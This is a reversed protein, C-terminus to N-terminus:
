SWLREDHKRIGTGRVFQLVIVLAGVSISGGGPVGSGRSKPKNPVMNRVVLEGAYEYADSVPMELHRYFAQKGTAGAHLSIQQANKRQWRM